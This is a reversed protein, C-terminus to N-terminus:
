KCVRYFISKQNVAEPFLSTRVERVVDFKGIGYIQYSIDKQKSIYPFKSLKYDDEIAEKESTSLISRRSCFVNETVSCLFNTDLFHEICQIPALHTKATSSLNTKTILISKMNVSCYNPTGFFRSSIATLIEIFNNIIGIGITQSKTNNEGFFVVLIGTKNLFVSTFQGRSSIPEINLGTLSIFKQMLEQGMFDDLLETVKHIEGRKIYFDNDRTIDLYRQYELTNYGRIGVIKLVEIFLNSMYSSSNELFSPPSMIDSNDEELDM